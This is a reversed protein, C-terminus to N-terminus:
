SRGKFLYPYLLRILSAIHWLLYKINKSSHRQADHFVQLNSLWYIKWGAKVIRRCIDTDECYMFFKEDFGQVLEFIDRRFVIFMGAAWDVEIAAASPIYDPPIRSGKLKMLLRKLLIFNTPMFRVSDELADNSSFVLPAAAGAVLTNNFFESLRAFDFDKIRIDPNLVLFLNGSSKKFAANHNAGFGKPKKNRIVRIPLAAFASLFEINENTNITLLIEYSQDFKLKLLDSFLNSILDAQGHSVVSLSYQTIYPSNSKL